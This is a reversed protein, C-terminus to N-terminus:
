KSGTFPDRPDFMSIQDSEKDRKGVTDIYYGKYWFERKPICIEHKGMKSINVACKEREFIGYIGFSMKPPISVLIHIHDPCVEGEIIEVGKWQCLQRLIERIELRKEEFFVKRRYKLAFVIHYKCNWKTYALSNVEINEKKM